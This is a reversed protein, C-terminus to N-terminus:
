GQEVFRTLVTRTDGNADRLVWSAAYVGPALAAVAVGSATDVNAARFVAPGGSAHRVTLSVDAGSPIVAHNPTPIGAGALAIFSGYLTEGDTPSTVELQPVDTTTEGGSLDDTQEIHAVPLGKARGNLPCITGSGGIGPAGIGANTPPSAPAPGYYDGAECSGSAIATQTGLINVRLHAVHLTTLARHASNTLTIVDGGTVGGSRDFGVPGVQGSFSAKAHATAHGRRRTLAYRAGPVLGTCSVRQSQLDATCTPFGTLELPVQDNVVTSASNAEGLPVTLSVLAGNPNAASVARNDEDELRVVTGPGIAPTSVEAIDTETGCLDTPSQTVTRGVTLRLGGTQSCPGILVEGQSGFSGVAFGEDLDIWGTWGSETFPNGGSGTLITDPPPGGHGYDVDVEDRDDGFAERPALTLSKLSVPGWGGNSRTSANARAVVIGTRRLRVVVAVGAARTGINGSVSSSFQTLNVSALPLASSSSTSSQVCGGQANSWMMQILWEDGNILQNYPSGDAAFGLPTGIEPGIECKDAIEFGDPDMWGDGEPNTMAEMTEHAMADIASEANPNGEPDSGPPVTEELSPDPIVAYITVGHGLNLMSHYGGYANSGCEDLGTCTDVNPPLFVFWLNNLGRASPDDSTQIVHDIENQLELDTVCTALGQPSPCQQSAPPYPDSDEVSDASASYNIGYQGPGRGDGYQRLASYVDTTDGSDHAIDTFFRQVLPVYGLIGTAPSGEFAYGTPAWFITHITVNRMVSGGHYVVPVNTGVAIDPGGAIPVIGLAGKIRPRFTATAGAVPALVGLIGVVCILAATAAASRRTM